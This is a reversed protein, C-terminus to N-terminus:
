DGLKELWERAQRLQAELDEIEQEVRRRELKKETQRLLSELSDIEKGIWYRTGPETSEWERGLEALKANIATIKEKTEM